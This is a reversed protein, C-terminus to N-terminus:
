TLPLLLSDLEMKRLHKRASKDIVDDLDVPIDYHIHTLALASLREQCMSSRSWTHLRRLASASHECEYSTVPMTSVIRLLVSINPFVSDNFDKVAAACSDPRNDKSILM